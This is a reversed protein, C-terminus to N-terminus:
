KPDKLFNLQKMMLDLSDKLPGIAALSEQKMMIGECLRSAKQVEDLRAVVKKWGHRDQINASRIADNLIKASSVPIKKLEEFLGKETCFFYKEIVEEGSKIRNKILEAQDELYEILKPIKDKHIIQIITEEKSEGIVYTEKGVQIEIPKSPHVVTAEADGNKLLKYKVEEM